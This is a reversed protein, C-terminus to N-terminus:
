VSLLSCRERSLRYVPARYRYTYLTWVMFTSKIGKGHSYRKGTGNHRRVARLLAWLAGVLMRRFARIKWFCRAADSSLMLILRMTIEEGISDAEVHMFLFLRAPSFTEHFRRLLLASIALVSATSWKKTERSSLYTRPVTSSKSLIQRSNSEAIKHM